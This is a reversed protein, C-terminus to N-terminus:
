RSELSHGWSRGGIASEIRPNRRDCPARRRADPVRLAPAPDPNEGGDVFAAEMEPVDVFIRVRDTRAVVPLEDTFARLREETELESMEIVILFEAGATPPNKQINSIGGFLFLIINKVPLGKAKAVLAELDEAQKQAAKGGGALGKLAELM